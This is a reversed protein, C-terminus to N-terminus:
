ILPQGGGLEAVQRVRKIAQDQFGKKSVERDPMIWDEYWIEPKRLLRLRFRNACSSRKWLLIEYIQSRLM